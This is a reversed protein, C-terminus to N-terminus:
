DFYSQFTHLTVPNDESLLTELAIIENSIDPQKFRAKCLEIDDIEVVDFDYSELKAVVKNVFDDQTRALALVPVFAGTAIGLMENGPRPKVQALGIWTGVINDNDKADNQINM